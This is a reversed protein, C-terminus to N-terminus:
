MPPDLNLLVRLAQRRAMRKTAKVKAKVAAVLGQHQTDRNAPGAQKRKLWRYFSSRAIGLATCMMM